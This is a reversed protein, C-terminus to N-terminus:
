LEVRVETKVSNAIFCAAHARHHLDALQDPTADSVVKPRLIVETMAMQGQDNRALLGEASDEYAEVVVGDHRALDLFWLMHCSAVSAIFMEEPDIAQASATGPPVNGASASGRVTLGDFVLDHDRNYRGTAFAGDSTWRVGAQYRSM